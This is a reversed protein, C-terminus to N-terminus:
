QYIITIDGPIKADTKVTLGIDFTIDFPLEGVISSTNIIAIIEGSASTNDYIITTAGTKGSSTVLVRSLVGPTSSLVITTSPTNIHQYTNVPVTAVFLPHTKTGVEFSGGPGSQRLNAGLTWETGTLNTNYVWAGQMDTGDTFGIATGSPPFAGTFLSSTGGGPTTSTAGIPRVVLGYEFGSPTTNIVSAVHCSSYGDRISIHNQAM